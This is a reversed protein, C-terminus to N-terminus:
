RPGGLIGPPETEGEVEVGRAPPTEVARTVTRAGGYGPPIMRNGEVGSSSRTYPMSSNAIGSGGSENPVEVPAPGGRSQAPKSGFNGGGRFQGDNPLEPIHAM